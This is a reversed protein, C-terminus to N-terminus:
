LKQRREWFEALMQEVENVNCIRRQEWERPFLGRYDSKLFREDLLEIVGVDETTRIVRGAAQLVKNMGPFRYAYDFGAGVREDYYHMLIERENSIQPLGTGVIVAGILQEKKLDIGEGFIGGLVCFAVLSGGRGKSTEGSFAQLFAEREAERMGTQQMMCWLRPEANGSNEADEPHEAIEAEEPHEAIEAEEPHEVIEANEAGEPFYEQPRMEDTEGGELFVDYVEQMMRYSPFFVMYNGQKARATKEIYLAIREYEARGRRTYKSSVDNGFLLLRQEESFATQAYVAYNDRRTSLLSKYYQIPLLTASFFITANGKDIREQLNLSPDVCYFKLKFRGDEEHESYVVYHEDVLEYINMFNRLNLYFENVERREPFDPSKQLYEDLDAALRTLAFILTGINEYVVYNECERKYGLLIRNCKELHRIVREARRDHKEQYPKLLKKAALFDEKYISASYMERSREVLNHAEDVLFIYDGRTGEAFFRKLYVNPDFVYNYDGIIDDAWTATDLSMEFPCVRYERAQELIVERTFVDEKQLLNYVADNVRDYHGKAYPCHVPNCDMEECLCLKEKATLQIIKAQYGRTRLLEFTEKAVTGTITKATLYFIKDGLGEGVAKVAPFVTSITKGVGTPAQIFLNKRRAITRYVDSALEKQGKRYAYPFELKKISAQRLNQWAFQFDAWKKYEDTLRTFWEALEAFSFTERFYKLNGLFATKTLEITDLNCYTLQVSIEALDHQLAYIYAYCMAQARHVGVPEDLADLNMYIGKIEDITVHMDEEVTLHNFNDSFDLQREGDCTIEIGDARGEIALTYDGESLEIKLPVEAHYNAGKNKQIRKHIRSGEWMAEPSATRGHRNDIDGERLIFEVLNRVSIKIIKKEDKEQQADM